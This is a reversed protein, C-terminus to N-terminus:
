EKQDDQVKRPLNEIKEEDKKFIGIQAHLKM